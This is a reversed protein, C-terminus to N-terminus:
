KSEELISKKDDDKELEEIYELMHEKMEGLIEVICLPYNELLSNFSNSVIYISIRNTKKNEIKIYRDHFKKEKNFDFWKTNGLSLNYDKFNNIIKNIKAINVDNMNLNLCSYIKLKINKPLVYFIEFSSSTIKKTKEDVTIGFYPDIITMICDDNGTITWLLFNQIKKVKECDDNRIFIGRDKNIKLYDMLGGYFEKNANCVSFWNENLERDYNIAMSTNHISSISVTQETDKCISNKKYNKNDFTVSTQEGLANIGLSIMKIFACKYDEILNGNEDFIQYKMSAIYERPFIKDFYMKNEWSRIEKKQCFIIDKLDNYVTLIISLPKNYKQLKEFYFKEKTKNEDTFETSIDFIKSKKEIFEPVKTIYEFCGLRKSYLSDSNDIFSLDINEKLFNLIRVIEHYNDRNNQYYNLFSDTYYIDTNIPLKLISEPSENKYDNFTQIIEQKNLINFSIDQNDNVVNEGFIKTLNIENDISYDNTLKKYVLLLKGSKKGLINKEEIFANKDKFDFKENVIYDANTPLSIGYLLIDKKINKDHLIFVITYRSM